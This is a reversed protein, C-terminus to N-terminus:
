IGARVTRPQAIGKTTCGGGNVTTQIKPRPARSKPTTASASVNKTRAPPSMRQIQIGDMPRRRRARGRTVGIILSTPMTWGGEADVDLRCKEASTSTTQHRGGRRLDYYQERSVVAKRTRLFYFGLSPPPVLYSLVCKANDRVVIGLKKGHGQGDGTKPGM